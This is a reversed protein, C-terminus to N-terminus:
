SLYKNIFQFDEQMYNEIEEPTAIGAEIRNAMDNKETLLDEEVELLTDIESQSMEMEDLLERKSPAGNVRWKSM